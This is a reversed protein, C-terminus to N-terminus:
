GRVEDALLMMPVDDSQLFKIAKARLAPDAKIEAMAMMFIEQESRGALEHKIVHQQTIGGVTELLLKASPVRDQGSERIWREANARVLSMVHDRSGLLELHNSAAAADRQVTDLRMGWEDAIEHCTSSREFAGAVMLDVIYRVRAAVSAPKEGHRAPAPTVSSPQASM